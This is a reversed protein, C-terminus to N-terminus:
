LKLSLGVWVGINERGPNKAYLGANSIHFWQAGVYLRTTENLAFTAGFGVNPTFNFSSGNTPVPNTTVMFGGGVEGFISWSEGTLFHWRLQMDFGGGFADAGPQWIENLTGFIALEVNEFFFWQLGIRVQAQNSGSWGHIWDGEFALRLSNQAGFRESSSDSIPPVADGPAPPPESASDQRPAADDFPAFEALPIPATAAALLEQRLADADEGSSAFASGAIGLAGLATSATRTWGHGNLLRHNWRMRASSYLFAM